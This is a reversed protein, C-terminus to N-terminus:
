QVIGLKGKVELHIFQVNTVIRVRQHPMEERTPAESLKRRGCGSCHLMYNNADKQGETLAALEVGSREWHSVGHIETVVNKSSM